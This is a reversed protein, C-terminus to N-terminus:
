RESGAKEHIFHVDGDERVSISYPISGYAQEARSLVWLTNLLCFRVDIVNAMAIFTQSRDKEKHLKKKFSLCLSTKM